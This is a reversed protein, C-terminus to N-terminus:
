WKYYINIIITAIIVMPSLENNCDNYCHRQRFTLGASFKSMVNTIYSFSLRVTCLRIQNFVASSLLERCGFQIQKVM